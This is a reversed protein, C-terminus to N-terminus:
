PVLLDLVGGHYYYRVGHLGDLSSPSPNIGEKTVESFLLLQFIYGM